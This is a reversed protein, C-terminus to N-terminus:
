GERLHKVSQNPEKASNAGRLVSRFGQWRMLGDVMRPKRRLRSMSLAARIESPAFPASAKSGNGSRRETQRTCRKRLLSSTKPFFFEGLFKQPRGALALVGLRKSTSRGCIGTCIPM